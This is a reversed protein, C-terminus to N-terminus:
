YPQGFEDRILAGEEDRYSRSRHDYRLNRAKAARLNQENTPLLDPDFDPLEEKGKRTM